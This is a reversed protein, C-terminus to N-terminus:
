LKEAMKNIKKTQKKKKEIEMERIKSRTVQVNEFNWRSKNLTNKLPNSQITENTTAPPTVRCM